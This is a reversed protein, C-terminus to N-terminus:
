PMSSTARLPRTAMFRASSKPSQAPKECPDCAARVYWRCVLIDCLHSNVNVIPGIGIEDPRPTYGNYSVSALSMSMGQVQMVAADVHRDPQALARGRARLGGSFAQADHANGFRSCPAIQNHQQHRILMLLLHVLGVHDLM